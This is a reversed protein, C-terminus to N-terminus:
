ESGVTGVPVTKTDMKFSGDQFFSVFRRENM